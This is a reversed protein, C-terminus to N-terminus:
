QLRFIPLTFQETGTLLKYCHQMLGRRHALYFRFDNMFSGILNFFLFRSDLLQCYQSAQKFGFVCNFWRFHTKLKLAGRMFRM